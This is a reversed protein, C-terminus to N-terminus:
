LDAAARASQSLLSFVPIVCRRFSRELRGRQFEGRRDLFRRTVELATRIAGHCLYLGTDQHYKLM